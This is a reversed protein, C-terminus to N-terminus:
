HSFIIKKLEELYAGVEELSEKMEYELLDTLSVIDDNEMVELVENLQDQLERNKDELSFDEIVITSLDVSFVPVVQFCLRIYRYIFDIFHGLRESAQADNGEQFQVAIQQLNDVQVSLEEMIGELHTMLVDPSDISDAILQKMEDSTVLLRLLEKVETFVSQQQEIIPQITPWSMDKGLTAGLGALRELFEELTEDKFKMSGPEVQLLHVTYSIVSGLWEIGDVLNRANEQDIEGEKSSLAADIHSLVRDCYLLAEDVSSFVIDSRSQIICNVAEIDEIKKDPLNDLPYNEGDIIMNIFVLGREGAWEEVAGAVELLTTEDELSFDVPQNNMLVQM